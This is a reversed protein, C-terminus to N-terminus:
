ASAAPARAADGEAQMRALGVSLALLLMPYAPYLYRPESYLPVHALLLLLPAALLLLSIRRRRWEIFAFALGGVWAILAALIGFRREPQDMLRAVNCLRLWACRLPERQWRELALDRLDRDAAEGGVSDTGDLLAPMYVNWSAQVRRAEEDTDGLPVRMEYHGEATGDEVWEMPARGDSVTGVWLNMGTGLTTLLIPRGAVVINRILWALMPLAAGLALAMPAIWRRSEWAVIGIALPIWVVQAPRTLTLVGLSLGAAVLLAAFARTASGQRSDLISSKTLLALTLASLAMALVETYLDRVVGVGPGLLMWAVLALLGARPGAVTGALQRAVLALLIGAMADLLAQALVAQQISRVGLKSLGALFLPYVPTRVTSPTFPAGQALSLGHGALLNTTLTVYTREDSRQMVSVRPEMVVPVVRTTVLLLALLIFARWGAFPPLRPM